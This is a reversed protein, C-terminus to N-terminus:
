TKTTKFNIKKKLKLQHWVSIFLIELDFIVIYKKKSNKLKKFKSQSIFM